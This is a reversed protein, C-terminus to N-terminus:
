VASYFNFFQPLLVLWDFIMAVGIAVVLLGGVLSVIRGHAILPRLIGPARDYLFGLLLFPIGLGLTYGLLLVAGQLITGSSAAMALIGGLVIGICPTWGIAFIAGLGFSAPWGGRTSVLGGGLRDLRATRTGGVAGGGSGGATAFSTTGTTAAVSAAAGVELPRWVRELVGIRLVGALALGMVVLIVGGVERLIPLYDFLPGGAFTATVGLVTFVVGFGAVYAVANGFALWRSPRVSPDGGAAVAVATLQGLYAPVLPLVCPSLFSILGGAVAVLFTLDTGTM